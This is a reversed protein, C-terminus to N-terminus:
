SATNSYNLPVSDTRLISINTSRLFVLLEDAKISIDQLIRDLEEQELNTNM